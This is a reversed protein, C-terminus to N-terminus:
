VEARGRVIKVNKLGTVNVVHELFVCRKNISELLTVRWDSYLFKVKKTIQFVMVLKIQCIQMITYSALSFRSM